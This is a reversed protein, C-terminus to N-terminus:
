QYAIQYLKGITYCPVIIPYLMGIIAYCFGNVIGALVIKGQSDEDEKTVEKAGKHFGYLFGSITAIAISVDFLQSTSANAFKNSLM